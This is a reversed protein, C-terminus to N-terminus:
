LPQFNPPVHGSKVPDDAGRFINFLHDFGGTNNLIGVDGPHLGQETYATSRSSDPEP